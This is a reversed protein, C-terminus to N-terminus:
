LRQEQQESLFRHCADGTSVRVTPELTCPAQQLRRFSLEIKIKRLLLRAAGFSFHEEFTTVQLTRFKM